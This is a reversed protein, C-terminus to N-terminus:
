PIGAGSKTKGFGEGKGKITHSIFKKKTIGEKKTNCMEHEQLSFDRKKDVTSKNLSPSLTNLIEDALKKDDLTIHASQAGSVRHRKYSFTDKEGSFEMGWIDAETLELINTYVDPAVDADAHKTPENQNDAGEHEESHVDVNKNVVNRCEYISDTDSFSFEKDDELDIYSEGYDDDM